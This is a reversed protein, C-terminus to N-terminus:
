PPKLGVSKQEVGTVNQETFLCTCLQKMSLMSHEITKFDLPGTNAQLNNDQGKNYNAHQCTAQM